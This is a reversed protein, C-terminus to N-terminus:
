AAKAPAAGILLEPSLAGAGATLAVRSLFGRRGVGNETHETMIDERPGSGRWVRAFNRANASVGLRSIASSFRLARRENACVRRLAAMFWNESIVRSHMSCHRRQWAMQRAVAM